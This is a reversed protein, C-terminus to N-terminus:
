WKENTFFYEIEKMKKKSYECGSSIKDIEFHKYVKIGCMELTNKIFAGRIPNQLDNDFYALSSTMTTIVIAQKGILSNPFAWGPLFAKDFFGKLIAPMNGWWIPFPIVLMDTKKILTQYKEILKDKGMGKSWLKLEEESMVPNFLDDILNINEVVYGRDMLVKRAMTAVSTIFSEKYPHSEIILFHM